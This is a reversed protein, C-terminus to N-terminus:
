KMIRSKNLARQYRRANNNHQRLSKAFAHYGSFDSKACFYLYSHTEYNLVADLSSISPICIVGPPLGRYKYTNYPSDFSLQKKLVRKISFDGIAFIVTPDAQLRMRKRLRNIYVGALRRKESNKNTEEEVISALISVDVKSLGIKEAKKIRKDSWFKLYENYMRDFFKEASTNWYFQYTNPVFMSMVTHQSFNYKSLFKKNNLLKLIKTSDAEIQLSIKQALEQKTRINNFILNLPTQEGSRLLNILENNSMKNKIFYRGPKVHAVYNKEEALWEFTNVNVIINNKFLIKKLDIFNSGTPIYLYNSHKTTLVVNPQLVRKYMRYVYSVGFIISLALASIIIKFFITSKFGKNNNKKNKNM